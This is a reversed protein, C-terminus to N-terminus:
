ITTKGDPLPTIYAEPNFSLELSDSKFSGIIVDALKKFCNPDALAIEVDEVAKSGPTPELYWHVILKGKPCAVQCTRTTNFRRGPRSIVTVSNSYESREIRYDKNFKYGERKMATKIMKIPIHTAEKIEDKTPGDWFFASPSIYATMLPVYPAYVFGTDIISTALAWKKDAARPDKYINGEKSLM